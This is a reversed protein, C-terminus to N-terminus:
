LIEQGVFGTGGTLLVKLRLHGDKGRVAELRRAAEAQVEALVSDIEERTAAEKKYRFYYEKEKLGFLAKSIRTPDKARLAKAVAEAAKHGMARVKKMRERVLSEDGTEKMLRAMFRRAQVDVLHYDRHNSVLLHKPLIEDELVEGTRLSVKEIYHSPRLEDPLPADKPM